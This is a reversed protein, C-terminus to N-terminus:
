RDSIKPYSAVSGRVPSQAANRERQDHPALQPPEAESRCREDERERGEATAARLIRERMGTDRGVLLEDRRRADVDGGEVGERVVEARARDARLLDRLLREAGGVADGVHLGSIRREPLSLLVEVGHEDLVSLRDCEMCFALVGALAHM